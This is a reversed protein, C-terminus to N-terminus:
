PLEQDLEWDLDDTLVTPYFFIDVAGSSRIEVKNINDSDLQIESEQDEDKFYIELLNDKKSTLKFYDSDSKCINSVEGSGWFINIDDSLTIIDFLLKKNM